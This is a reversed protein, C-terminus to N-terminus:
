DNNNTEEKLITNSKNWIFINNAIFGVLLMAWTWEIKLKREVQNNSWIKRLLIFSQLYLSFQAIGVIVYYGTMGNWNWQQAPPIFGLSLVIGVYIMSPITLFLKQNISFMFSVGKSKEHKFLV